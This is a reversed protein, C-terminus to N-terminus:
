QFSSQLALEVSFNRWRVKKELFISINKYVNSRRRSKLMLIREHVPFLILKWSSLIIIIGIFKDWCCFFITEARVVRCVIQAERKFIKVVNCFYRREMAFYWISIQFELIWNLTAVVLFEESWRSNECFFWRQFHDLVRCFASSM